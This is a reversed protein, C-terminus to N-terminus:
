KGSIMRWGNGVAKARVEGDKLTAVLSVGNPKQEIQHGLGQKWLSAMLAGGEQTKERHDHKTKEALRM